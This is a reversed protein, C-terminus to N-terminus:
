ELGPPTVTLETRPRLWRGPAPRLHYAQYWCNEAPHEDTWDWVAYSRWFARYRDRAPENLRAGSLRMVSIMGEVRYLVATINRQRLALRMRAPSPCDAALRFLLPPAFEFETVCRGPTYFAKPDGLVLLRGTGATEAARVMAPLYRGNPPIARHLYARESECGLLVTPAGAHLYQSALTLPIQAALGLALAWRMPGAPVAANALRGGLIALAPYLPALYRVIGGAGHVWGLWLLVCTAALWRDALPWRPPRVAALGIVLFWAPALAEHLPDYTGRGLLVPVLDAWGRWLPHDRRWDLAWALHLRYTEGELGPHGFAYPYLPNGMFLLNKIGWPVALAAAVGLIRVVHRGAVRPVVLGLAAVAGGLSYAGLYKIGCGTGFLWGAETWDRGPRRGPTLARLIAACAAADLMLRFMDVGATAAHRALLPAAALSAAALTALGPASGALAGHVILAAIPLAQWHLLRASVTSGFALAPAYLMEAGQPYAAFLFRDPMVVRGARLYLDPLALHYRLPDFVTEPCLAAPLALLAPAMAWGAGSAPRSRAPRLRRLLLPAALVPVLLAFVPPRFLGALGIGLLTLTAPALGLLWGGVFGPRRNLAWGAAAAGAGLVALDVAAFALLARGRALWGELLIGASFAGHRPVFYGALDHLSVRHGPAGLYVALVLATWALLACDRVARRAM